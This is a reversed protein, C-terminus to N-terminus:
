FRTGQGQMELEGYGAPSKRKEATSIGEYLSYINVYIYNCMNIHM